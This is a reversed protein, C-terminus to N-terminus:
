KRRDRIDKVWDALAQIDRLIEAPEPPPEASGSPADHVFRSCKKMAKVVSSCDEPQIDAIRPLQKTHIDFEFRNVVGNLLVEEVAREWAKRLLSYIREAQAEYTAREGTRYTKDAEQHLRRLTGIRKSVGIGDWPLEPDCVGYGESPSHSVTIPCCPIGEVDASSSLHALFVLDHTFVVVQRSKGLEVLRNAVYSRRVHDLSSVPDDLVVASKSSAMSLEALFTALALCRHEGESVVKNVPVDPAASLRLQHYLVGKKGSTPTMRVDVSPARLQELEDEFAACVKPTVIETSLETNKRTIAATNTDDKCCRLQELQQMRRIESIVVKKNAELWLRDRFQLLEAVAAKRGDDSVVTDYQKAQEEMAGVLQAIKELPSKPVVPVTSWADAECNNLMVRLREKAANLYTATQASLEADITTLDATLQKVWDPLVECNRLTRQADVLLQRAEDALRQTDDQVYVEFRTLRDSAEDDLVRQCLACRAGETTVPFPDSPYVSTESYRRAAEWLARWVDSGIGPLPDTGFAANAAVEAATKKAAADLWCKHLRECAASGLASDLATLHQHWTQLRQCKSRLDAAAKVPNDALAGELAAIRIREGDSLDALSDVTAEKTKATLGTLLQEVATGPTVLPANLLLTKQQEPKDIKRQIEEGIWGAAEALKDFLDLGLPRFALENEQSVYLSGCESDFVSIASLEVPPPQDKQWHAVCRDEGVYYHVSAGLSDNKEVAFVNPLVDTSPVRARCLTKLVRAYGSKGSGNEGYIVTLGTPSFPLTQNAALANVNDVGEIKELRVPSSGQPSSPVHESLLPEASVTPVEDIGQTQLCIQLLDDHDKQLLSGRQVLRRLADRQWVPRDASWKVIEDLISTSPM